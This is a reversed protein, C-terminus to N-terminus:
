LEDKQVAKERQKLYTSVLKVAIVSLVISSLSLVIAQLGLRGFASVIEDNIGINVGMIFLLLLLSAYQLKSLNKEVMESLMGRSSIMAGALIIFIYLLIRVWVGGCFDDLIHVLNPEYEISDSINERNM